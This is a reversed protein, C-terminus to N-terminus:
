TQSPTQGRDSTETPDAARRTGFRQELVMAAGVLMILLPWSNGWDFGFVELTSILMWIGILFLWPSRRGHRPRFLQMAGFYIVVLPWLRWFDGIDIIRFRDLLLVGGIVILAIGWTTSGNGRSTQEM